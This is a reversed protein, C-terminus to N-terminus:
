DSMPKYPTGSDSLVVEVRRNQQRGAEEKNSAIPFKEGYAEVSMRERAINLKQLESLVAEARRQSLEKNYTANGQSDTYGEITVNVEPHEQLFEALRAVTREGGSELQAKDFAFLMDQLTLVIGRDTKEAKAESIESKLQALQEDKSSLQAEKMSLMMEDRREHAEELQASISGLEAEKRTLELQQQAMYVDHDFQSNDESKWSNQATNAKAEAEQLAVPAYETVKPDQKLVAIDSNVQELSDPIPKTACGTTVLTASTVIAITLKNM